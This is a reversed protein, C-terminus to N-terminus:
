KIAIAGQTGTFTGLSVLSKGAEKSVFVEYTEGVCKCSDPAIGAQPGQGGKKYSGDVEYVDIEDGPKIVQLPGSGDCDKVTATSVQCGGIQVEVTGDSLGFYGTDPTADSYMKTDLKGVVDQPNAHKNEAECAKKAGPKYTVSKAVGILAGGRYLAIVDIDPGPSNTLKCDPETYPSGDVTVYNYETGPTSTDGGTSTDTGTSSDGTVADGEADGGTNVSADCAGMSLLAVVGLASALKEFKKM